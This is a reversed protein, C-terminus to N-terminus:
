NSGWHSISTGYTVRSPSDVGEDFVTRSGIVVDM